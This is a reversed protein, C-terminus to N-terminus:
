QACGLELERADRVLPEAILQLDVAGVLALVATKVDGASNEGLALDDLKDLFSMDAVPIVWTQVREDCQATAAHGGASDEGEDIVKAYCLAGGVDLDGLELLDDALVKFGGDWAQHDDELRQLDDDVVERFVVELEEVAGERFVWGETGM